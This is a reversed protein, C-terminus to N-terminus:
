LAKKKTQRIRESIRAVEKRFLPNEPFDREVEKMLALSQPLNNERLYIVSLLIKAFPPYYRGGEVVKMLNEIGKQKNGQIKDFRIFMRFFFNLSGVAYEVSGLTLYADIVPPKLALLKQAYKLNEKSLSYSRFYKKEVLSTYDTEVGVAMSMALLGDRDQPDVALRASAWKRAEATEAFIHTRVAPEPKLKKKDTVQDDNSFFDTELIKLRDFESFLLLAARVSHGLPADPHDRIEEDLIAHAGAFDFNYMRHFAQDIPSQLPITSEPVTQADTENAALFLFLALLM